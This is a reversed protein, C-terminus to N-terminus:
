SNFYVCLVSTHLIHDDSNIHCTISHFTTIYKTIYTLLLSLDFTYIKLYYMIQGNNKLAKYRHAKLIEWRNDYVDNIHVTLLPLYEKEIM